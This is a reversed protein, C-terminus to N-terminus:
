SIAAAHRADIRAALDNLHVGKAAKQSGFEIRLMPINIEGIGVKRTFKDTSLHSFYDRGLTGWVAAKENAHSLQDRLLAVCFFTASAYCLSEM